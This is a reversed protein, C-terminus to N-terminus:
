NMSYNNKGRYKKQSKMLLPTMRNKKYQNKRSEAEYRKRLPEIKEETVARGRETLNWVGRESKFALGM